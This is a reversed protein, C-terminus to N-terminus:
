RSDTRLPSETMGGDEDVTTVQWFYPVGWKPGVIDAQFTNGNVAMPKELLQTTHGHLIVVANPTSGGDEKYTWKVRITKPAMVIVGATTTGSVINSIQSWATDKSRSTFWYKTGPVLNEVTFTVETNTPGPDMITHVVRANKYNSITIVATSILLEIETIPAKGGNLPTSPVKCSLVMETDTAVVVVLNRIQLPTACLSAVLTLYIFFCKKM